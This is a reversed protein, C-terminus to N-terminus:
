GSRLKLSALRNFPWNPMVENTTTKLLNVMWNSVPLISKDVVEPAILFVVGRETGSDSLSLERDLLQPLRNLWTSDIKMMRLSLWKGQALLSICLRGQEALVFWVKPSNFRSRWQNFENLYPQASTLRLGNVNAVRDLGDLLGQDIASAVQMEGYGNTSLRLVWDGVDNGYTLSFYHRIYAQVELDNSLENGWPILAYRVFYNSLVVTANMNSGAFTALGTELARLAPQWQAEGNEISDCIETKNAVEKTQFLGKHLRVISVRYPNLHIRLEDRLSLSM